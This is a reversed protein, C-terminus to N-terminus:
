KVRKLLTKLKISKFETIDAGPDIELLETITPVYNAEPFQDLIEPVTPRTCMHDPLNLEDYFRYIANSRGDWGIVEIKRTM